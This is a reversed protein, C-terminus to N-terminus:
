ERTEGAAKALGGSPAGQAAAPLMQDESFLHMNPHLIELRNLAAKAVILGDFNEADM